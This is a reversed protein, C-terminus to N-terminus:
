SLWLRQARSCWFALNANFGCEDFHTCGLAGVSSAGEMWSHIGNVAGAQHQRGRGVAAAPLTM